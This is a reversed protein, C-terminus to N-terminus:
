KTKVESQANKPASGSQAEEGAVSSQEDAPKEFSDPDKREKLLYPAIPVVVAVVKERETFLSAARSAEKRDRYEGIQVAYWTKGRPDQKKLILVEYGKKKLDSATKIANEMAICSEVQVTFANEQTLPEQAAQLEKSAEPPKSGKPTEAPLAEAQVSFAKKEPTMGQAKDAAKEKVSPMKPPQPKVVIPMRVKPAAAKVGAAEQSSAEAGPKQTAHEAGTKQEEAISKQPTTAPTSAPPEVAAGRQASPKIEQGPIRSINAMIGAMWGAMFILVALVVSITSVLAIKKKDLSFDYGM